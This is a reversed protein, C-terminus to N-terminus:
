RVEYAVDSLSHWNDAHCHACSTELGLRIVNRDTFESLELRPLPNSEKRKAIHDIWEKIPASRREFTEEVTETESAFRRLGGAMKNLLRVTDVNALLSVGWMGGLHDVMEKAIRGPESLSAEVGLRKLSDIIADEKTMLDISQSSDRYRQGFSWGETRYRREGCFEHYCERDFTNFPLVTAIREPREFSKVRV